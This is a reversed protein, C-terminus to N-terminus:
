RRPSRRWRRRPRRWARRRSSPASRCITPPRPSKAARQFPDRRHRRRRRHAREEAEGVGRQFRRSAGRIRRLFGSRAAGDSQRRRPAEARRAAGGRAASQAEAASAHQAAARESRRTPRRASPPPRLKSASRPRARQAQIRRGGQGHRRDRRARERGEVEVSLDGDALARMQDSLRKLPREIKATTMWFSFGLALLRAFAGCGSAVLM